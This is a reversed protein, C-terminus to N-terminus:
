NLNRRKVNLQRVLEHMRANVMDLHNNVINRKRKLDRQCDICPTEALKRNILRSQTSLTTQKGLLTEITIFTQNM